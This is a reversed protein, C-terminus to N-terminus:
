STRSWCSTSFPIRLSSFMSSFFNGADFNAQSMSRDFLSPTETSAAASDAPHRSTEM